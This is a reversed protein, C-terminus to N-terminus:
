RDFLLTYGDTVVESPEVPLHEAHGDMFAATSENLRGHDGERSHGTHSVFDMTQDYMWVFQAPLLLGARGFMRQTRTWRDVRGEGDRRSAYWWRVNLHYSTGVDDYCTISADIQTDETWFTRQYTGADSPCEFIPLELREDDTEGADAFTLEPYLYENLPREDVHVENVSGDWHDSSTKGGFKWSNFLVTGPNEHVPVVPWRDDNNHSYMAAAITIQRVNNLCGVLRSAERARGLAPLLLGILLAIVAIVVLLEILTFGRGGGIRDIRGRPM